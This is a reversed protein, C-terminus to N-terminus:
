EDRRERNVKPHLIHTQGFPFRNGENRKGLENKKAKLSERVEIVITEITEYDQHPLFTPRLEAYMVKDEIMRDIVEGVYSNRATEYSLLSKLCRTAQNFQAWVRCTRSYM